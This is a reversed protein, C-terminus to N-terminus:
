ISSFVASATIGIQLFFQTLPYSARFEKKVIEKTTQTRSKANSDESVEFNIFKELATEIEAATREVSVVVVCDPFAADKLRAKVEKTLVKQLAVNAAEFKSKALRIQARLRNM